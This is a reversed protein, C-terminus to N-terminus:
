EIEGEIRDLHHYINNKYTGLAYYLWSVSLLLTNFSFVHSLLKEWVRM